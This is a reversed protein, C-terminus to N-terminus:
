SLWSRIEQLSQPNISYYAWRGRREVDLLRADVLKRLHHSLTPQSLEFLPQLECQCIEEGHRRVLDFVQARLPDALAKGIAAIRAATAADLHETLTPDACCQARRLRGAEDLVALRESPSVEALAQAARRLRPDDTAAPM